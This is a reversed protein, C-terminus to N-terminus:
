ATESVIYMPVTTTDVVELRKMRRALTRTFKISCLYRKRLDRSQRRTQLPCEGHPEDHLEVISM